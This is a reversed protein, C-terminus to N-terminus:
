NSAIRSLMYQLMEKYGAMFKCNRTALSGLYEAETATVKDIVMDKLLFLSAYIVGFLYGIHSPSSVLEVSGKVRKLEYPRLIVSDDPAPKDSCVGLQYRLLM